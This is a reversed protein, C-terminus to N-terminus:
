FRLIYKLDLSIWRGETEKFLDVIVGEAALTEAGQYRRLRIWNRSVIDVRFNTAGQRMVLQGAANRRLTVSIPAGDVRMTLSSEIYGGSTDPQLFESILLRNTTEYYDQGTLAQLANSAENIVKRPINIRAATAAINAYQSATKLAPSIIQNIAAATDADAPREETVIRGSPYYSKEIVFFAGNRREFFTATSDQSFGCIPFLFFILFINKM